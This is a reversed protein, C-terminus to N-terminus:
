IHHYKGGNKIEQARYLQEILLLRVLQHPFVLRSLSWVLDARQQLESTVGYAGGIIITISGRSFRTELLASLEPSSLNKGIEDLLVVYGGAALKFSIRESEEQRAQVGELSSHPLLVWEINYPKALRKQYRELGEIIWPDHKKGIAIIKISM